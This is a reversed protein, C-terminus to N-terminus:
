ISVNFNLIAQIGASSVANDWLPDINSLPAPHTMYCWMRSWQLIYLVDTAWQPALSPLM